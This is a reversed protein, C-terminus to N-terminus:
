SAQLTRETLPETALDPEVVLGAALFTVLDAILDPLPAGLTGAQLANQYRALAHVTSTMMLVWREEVVQEPYGRLLGGVMTRFTSVTGDFLGELGIYGGREVVYRSLFALYHNGKELHCALSGIWARVLDVVELSRGQALLDALLEARMAESSRARYATIERLLTERDGFHYQVAVNNRQGAAAGIDRLPVAAIGRLAFLEEAKLLILLRTADGRSNPRDRGNTKPSPAAPQRRRSRSM